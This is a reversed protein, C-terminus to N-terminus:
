VIYITVVNGSRENNNSIMVPSGLIARIQSIALCAASYDEPWGDDNM